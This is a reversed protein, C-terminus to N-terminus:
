GDKEARSIINYVTRVKLSFMDAIEKASKGEYYNFYVINKQIITIIKSANLVNVKDIVDQKGRECEKKNQLFELICLMKSFYRCKIIKKNDENLIYLNQKLSHLSRKSNNNNYHPHSNSFQQKCLLQPIFSM